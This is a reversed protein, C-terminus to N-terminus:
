GESAETLSEEYKENRVISVEIGSGNVIRVTHKLRPPIFVTAPSDVTYKEDGLTVEFTIGPLPFVYAQSVEHAHVEVYEPGPPDKVDIHHVFINLDAEKVMDTNLFAMLPGLGNMTERDHHILPREGWDFPKVIYKSYDGM